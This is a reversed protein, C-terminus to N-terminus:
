QDFSRDLPPLQDSRADILLPLSNLVALGRLNAQESM